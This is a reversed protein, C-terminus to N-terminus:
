TLDEFNHMNCNIIKSLSTKRKQMKDKIAFKTENAYKFYKEVKTASSLSESDRIKIINM